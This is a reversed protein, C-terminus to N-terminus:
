GLDAIQQDFAIIEAEKKSIRKELKTRKPGAPMPKEIGDKPKIKSGYLLLNRDKTISSQVNKKLLKLDEVSLVKKDTKEGPKGDEPWLVKVDPETGSEEYAKWAKFLVELRASMGSIEKMLDVRARQTEKSDDEPLRTLAAHKKGRMMYLTSNERVIKQIVTPFSEIDRKGILNFRPKDDGNKESGKKKEPAKAPPNRRIIRNEVKTKPQPIKKLGAIKNLEWVLKEFSARTEGRKVLKGLVKQKKSTKQLLEIGQDYDQPSNFWDIGQKKIDGAM